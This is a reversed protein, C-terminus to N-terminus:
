LYIGGWEDISRLCAIMKNISGGWLPWHSCIWTCIIPRASIGLSGDPTYKCVRLENRDRPTRWCPQFLEQSARHRQTDSVGAKGEASSVYAVASISFLTNWSPMCSVSFDFHKVCWRHYWPTPWDHLSTPGVRAQLVVVETCGGHETVTEATLRGFSVRACACVWGANLHFAFTNWFRKVALM